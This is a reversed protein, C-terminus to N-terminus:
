SQDAFQERKQGVADFIIATLSVGNNSIASTWIRGCFPQGNAKLGEVEAPTAAHQSKFNSRPLFKEIPEGVLGGAGVWFIEHAALNATVIKGEPSVTVIGLASCNVVSELRQEASHLQLIEAELDQLRKSASRRYVAMERILLSVVVYSSFIFVVRPIREPGPELHSLGEAFCTTIASIAVIQWPSLFASAVALLILYVYGFGLYPLLIAQGAAVLAILSFCLSVLRQANAESYWPRARLIRM